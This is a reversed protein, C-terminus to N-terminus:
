STCAVTPSAGSWAACTTGSACDALQRHIRARAATPLSRSGAVPTRSSTALIGATAIEISLAM